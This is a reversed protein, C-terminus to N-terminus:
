AARGLYREEIRQAAERARDGGDALLETYVLLPHATHPAPGTLALPGPPRLLVLPGDAAPLARLREALDAPPDPVHLTTEAGRYHGTLRFAAAGGGWAWPITDGLMTEIRRELAGPDADATRYRGVLLRPRVLAAYGALWRDRLLRPDRLHRKTPGVVVLGDAQLRVLVGAAATKGVGAAEALRRVPVNLLDPRALLAFLVQHGPVGLGRGQAPRPPPRRGEIAAVYTDGLRLHCNGAADLYNVGHDALYRGLPRGVHPAFFIWAAGPEKARRALLGDALVYTVHTRATEARLRHVGGPTRIRVVGGGAEARGGPVLAVDRVFPLRRLHEFYEILQDTARTQM